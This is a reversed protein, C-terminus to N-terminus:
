LKKQRKGQKSTQEPQSTDMHDQLEDEKCIKFAEFGALLEAELILKAKEKEEQTECFSNGRQLLGSNIQEEKTGACQLALEHQLEGITISIEEIRDECQLKESILASHNVMPGLHDGKLSSLHGQLMAKERQLDAICKRLESTQTNSGRPFSRVRTPACAM